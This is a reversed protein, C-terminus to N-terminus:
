EHYGFYNNVMILKGYHGRLFYFRKKHKSSYFKEKTYLVMGRYTLYGIIMPYKQHNNM